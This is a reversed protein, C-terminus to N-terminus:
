GRVMLFYLQNYINYNKLELLKNIYYLQLDESLKDFKTFLLPTNKTIENSIDIGCIDIIKLIQICKQISM